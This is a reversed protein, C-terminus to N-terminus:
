GQMSTVTMALDSEWKTQLELLDVACFDAAGLYKKPLTTALAIVRMGANRAAQIGLPANEIVVCHQPEVRLARAAKLYSEPHPKGNNVDDATVIVGFGSRISAPLVAELNVRATGTVLGIRLSKQRLYEIFVEAEPRVSARTIERYHRQKNAVFERLEDETIERHRGGFIELALDRSNSGERLLIEEPDISIDFRRFAEQWASVHDDMSDVLVGDYDFLVAKIM